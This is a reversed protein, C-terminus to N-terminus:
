APVIVALEGGTDNVFATRNDKEKLSFFIEKKNFADTLVEIAEQKEVFTTTKLELQQYLSPAIQIKFVYTNM